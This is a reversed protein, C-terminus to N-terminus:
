AACRGFVSHERRHMQLGRCRLLPLRLPLKPWQSSVSRLVVFGSRKCLRRVQRNRGESIRVELWLPNSQRAM